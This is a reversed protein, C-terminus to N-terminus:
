QTKKEKNNGYYLIQGAIIGNVAVSVIFGALTTMDFTEVITTFVRVAAGATNLFFTVFSLTGTSKNQYNPVIQVVRSWISLLICFRMLQEMVPFGVIDDVGGFMASAFCIYGIVLGAIVHLKEKTYYFILGLIIFDQILLAFLDGYANFPAHVVTMQYGVSITYVIVELYFMSPILGEVSKAKLIAIIQPVKLGVAGLIIIWGLVKSLIVSFDDM